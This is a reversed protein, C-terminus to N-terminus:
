TRRHAPNGLDQPVGPWLTTVKPANARKKGNPPLLRSDAANRLADRIEWRRSSYRRECDCERHGARRALAALIQEAFVSSTVSWRSIASAPVAIAGTWLIIRNSGSIEAPRLRIFSTILLPRARRIVDSFTGSTCWRSNNAFRQQRISGSTGRGGEKLVLGVWTRTPLGSAGSLNGDTFRDVGVFGITFGLV